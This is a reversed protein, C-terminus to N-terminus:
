LLHFAGVVKRNGVMSNFIEAAESTDRVICEIKEAKFREITEDPVRVKATFGIGLVVVEPKNEIVRDFDEPSFATGDQRWWRGDVRDPFILLPARYVKGNCVLKSFAVEEIRPM